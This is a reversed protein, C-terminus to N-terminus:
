LQSSKVGNKLKQMTCHVYTGMVFRTILCSPKDLIVAIFGVYIVNLKFSSFFLWSALNPLEHCEQM